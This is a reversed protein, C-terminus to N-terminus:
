HGGSAASNWLLRASTCTHTHSNMWLTDATEKADYSHKGVVALLSGIASGIKMRADGTSYACKSALTRAFAFSATLQAIM